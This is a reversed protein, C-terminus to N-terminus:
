CVTSYQSDQWLDKSMSEFPMLASTNKDVFVQEWSFNSFAWAGKDSTVKTMKSTGKQCGYQLRNELFKHETEVDNFRICQKAPM